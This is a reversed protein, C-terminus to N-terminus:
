KAKKRFIKPKFTTFYGILSFFFGLFLSSSKARPHVINKIASQRPNDPNVFIPYQGDDQKTKLLDEVVASNEELNSTSTDHLRYKNGTFSAGEWDYNYAVEVSYSKVGKDNVHTELKASEVQAVHPVWNKADREDITVKGAYILAGVGIILFLYGILM